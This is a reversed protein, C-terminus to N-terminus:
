DEDWGTRKRWAEIEAAFRTCDEAHGTENDVPHSNFPGRDTVVKNCAGCRWSTARSGWDGTAILDFAQEDAGVGDQDGFGLLIGIAQWATGEARADDVYRRVRGAAADRVMVAAKIAYHAKPFSISFSAGPFSPRTEFAEDGGMKLVVARIGNDVRDTVVDRVDDAPFLKSTTM